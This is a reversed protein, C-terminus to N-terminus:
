QGKTLNKSKSIFKKLLSYTNIFLDQSGNSKLLQICRSNDEAKKLINAVINVRESNHKIKLEVRYYEEHKFFPLNYAKAFNLVVNVLDEPDDVNFFATYRKNDKPISNKHSKDSTNNKNEEKTESNISTEATEGSTVESKNLKKEVVSKRSSFEEKIQDITPTPGNMWEHNKIEELTPRDEPNFAVMRQFLDKFSDICNYAVANGM